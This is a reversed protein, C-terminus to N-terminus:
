REGYFWPNYCQEPVLHKSANLTQRLYPDNRPVEIAGPNTGQKPRKTSSVQEPARDKSSNLEGLFVFALRFKTQEPVLGMGSGYPQLMAGPRSGQKLKVNM